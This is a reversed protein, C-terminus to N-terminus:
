TVGSGLTKCRQDWFWYYLAIINYGDGMRVGQEM